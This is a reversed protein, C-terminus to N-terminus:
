SRKGGHRVERTENFEMKSEVAADIDVGYAGCIDLVRIIIDALESPIGIPKTYWGEDRLAERDLARNLDIFQKHGDPFRLRMEQGHAELNATPAEPTRSTVQWRPKDVEYGNRWDELAEACESVVLMLLEAFSRQDLAWVGIGAGNVTVEEGERGDWWGKARATEHVADRLENLSM